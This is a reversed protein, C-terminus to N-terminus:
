FGRPPTLWLLISKAKCFNISKAIINALNIISTGLPPERSHIHRLQSFNKLVTSIHTQRFMYFDILSVELTRTTGLFHPIKDVVCLMDPSNISPITCSEPVIRVMLQLINWYITSWIIQIQM